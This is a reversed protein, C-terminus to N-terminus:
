RLFKELKMEFTEVVNNNYLTEIETCAESICQSAGPLLSIQLQANPHRSRLDDWATILGAPIGSQNTIRQGNVLQCISYWFNKNSEKILRMM